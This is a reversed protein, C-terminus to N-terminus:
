HVDQNQAITMSSRAHAVPEQCARADARRPRERSRRFTRQRVDRGRAVEVVGQGARADVRHDDPPGISRPALIESPGGGLSQGIM